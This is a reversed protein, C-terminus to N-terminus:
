IFFSISVKGWIIRPNPMLSMPISLKYCLLELLDRMVSLDDPSLSSEGSTTQEEDVEMTELENLQQASCNM